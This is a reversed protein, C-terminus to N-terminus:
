ILHLLILFNHSVWRYTSTYNSNQWLIYLFVLNLSIVNHAHALWKKFLALWNDTHLTYLVEFIPHTCHISPCKIQWQQVDQSLIGIRDWLEEPGLLTGVLYTECLKKIRDGSTAVILILHSKLAVCLCGTLNLYRQIIGHVDLSLRMYPM